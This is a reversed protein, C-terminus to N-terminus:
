KKKKKVKGHMKKYVDFVVAWPESYGKWYKKVAKKARNWTKEDKVAGPPNHPRDFPKYEESKGNEKIERRTKEDLWDLDKAKVDAPANKSYQEEAIKIIFQESLEMVKQLHHGKAKEETDWDCDCLEATKNCGRCKGDKLPSDCEDCKNAVKAFSM